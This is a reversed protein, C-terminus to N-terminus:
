SEKRGSSCGANLLLSFTKGKGLLIQARADLCGVIILAKKRRERLDEGLPQFRPNALISVTELPTKESHHIRPEGNEYVMVVTKSYQYLESRLRLGTHMQWSYRSFQGLKCLKANRESPPFERKVSKAHYAVKVTVLRM